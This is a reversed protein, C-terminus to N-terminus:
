SRPIRPGLEADIRAILERCLAFLNELPEPGGAGRGGGVTIAAMRRRTAVAADATDRVVVERAAVGDEVVARCLRLLDPHAALPVVPGHRRGVAPGRGGLDELGVVVTRDRRLRRREHRLWDSMGLASPRGAGTLVVWLDFHELRGGLREGLRLATVVGSANGDDLPSGGSLHRGLLLATLGILVATPLFQAASVGAGEVGALRLVCTVLLLCMSGLLVACPDGPLRALRGPETRRPGADYHAAVVLVGRKAGDERSVVNQSARRGALARVPRAIGAVDLAALVTAALVVTTGLSTDTVSVLSGGIALLAHIAHGLDARPSIRIPLLEAGRGVSRLRQELHRAARREADSGARRGSHEALAAIEEEPDM